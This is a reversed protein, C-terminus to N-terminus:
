VTLELFKQTLPQFFRYHSLTYFPRFSKIVQLIHFTPYKVVSSSPGSVQVFRKPYPQTPVGNLNFNESLFVEYSLPPPITLVYVTYHSRSIYFSNIDEMTLFLSFISLYVSHITYPDHLTDLVTYVRSNNVQRVVYIRVVGFRNEELPHHTDFFRLCRTYLDVLSTPDQFDTNGCIKEQLPHGVVFCGEEGYQKLHTPLFKNEDGRQLSLGLYQSM